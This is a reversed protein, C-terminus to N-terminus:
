PFFLFSSRLIFEGFCREDERIALNFIPINRSKAIRLAFSTGGKKKGGETWCLVFEVPDNLDPGLVQYSNRSMLKLAATSLRSAAPHFQNVLDLNFPPVFYSIGDVTRGNFGDWPLFIQKTAAGKEFADDAGDAGGSRLCYGMSDLRRAISAMQQQILRPTERSGIGAYSKM